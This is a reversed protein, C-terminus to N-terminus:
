ALQVLVKLHAGSRFQQWADDFQALPVVCETLSDMPLEPLLEIAEQFDGPGAGGSWIIAQDM